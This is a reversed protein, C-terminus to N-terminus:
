SSSFLLNRLFHSLYSRRISFVEKTLKGEALTESSVLKSPGSFHDFLKPVLWNSNGHSVEFVNSGSAEIGNLYQSKALM